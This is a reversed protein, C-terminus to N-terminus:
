FFRQQWKKKFLLECKTNNKRWRHRNRAIFNYIADKISGPLPQFLSFIYWPFTLSAAIRLAANSRYFVLGDEILIISESSHTSFGFMVQLQRALTSNLDTFHFKKKRERRLIFLVSQTCLGCERDFLVIPFDIGANTM